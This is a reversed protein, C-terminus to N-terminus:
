KDGPQDSSKNEDSQDPSGSRQAGNAHKVAAVSQMEPVSRLIQCCGGPLNDDCGNDCAGCRTACLWLRRGEEANKDEIPIHWSGTESEQIVSSYTPPMHLVLVGKAFTYKVQHREKWKPFFNSGLLEFIHDRMEDNTVLLCKLRVAAYLWYWDDNSGSPTTYLIGKARWTEILEKASPNEMFVRVRKNHLIVLPWKGQSRKYLENVVADLQSLSFGGDAFNQQYLGVNAGDVIAEYAAHKGLWDQFNTFNSWTERSMALSAVSDSFMETEKQTIDVCALTESCCSCRGDFGVSGWSVRWKGKGLWGLGHWGGGNVTIADRVASADWELRGAERSSESGFWRELVEATSRSVCAVSGRLKLLYEYVKEERGLRASVDLLAAIEPEEPSIGNLVMHNEVDYAKDADLNKCFWFLAPGYTRLKPSAGYKEKLTKVLDFALDGGGEIRHAAIRAMSTITAETPLTGYAIMRNFIEFGSSIASPKDPSPLTELSSSCLHLINNFHYSILHTGNSIAARYLDLAGSLDGNRSCTDLARRFQAEPAHGKKKKKSPPEMAM